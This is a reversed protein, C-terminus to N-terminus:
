YDNKQEHQLLWCKIEKFNGSINGAFGGIHNTAVVRHCPVIIPIPNRRCANGIARAGSALNKAVEGYTKVSGASIKQLTQWVKQQFVTGNLFLDLNFVYKADNFYHNLQTVVKQAIASTPTLLAHDHENTLFDIQVLYSDNTKIGLNGVPSNIIANYRDDSEKCIDSHLNNQQQKTM